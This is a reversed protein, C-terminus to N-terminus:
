CRAARRSCFSRKELILFYLSHPFSLPPLRAWSLARSDGLGTLLNINSSLFSICPCSSHSSLLFLFLGLSPFLFFFASASFINFLITLRPCACITCPALRTNHTSRSALSHPFPLASLACSPPTFLFFFRLSRRVVLRGTCATLWVVFCTVVEPRPATFRCLLCLSLSLLSFLSLPDNTCSRPAGV